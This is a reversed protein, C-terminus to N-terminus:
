LTMAIAFDHLGIVFRCVVATIFRGDVPLCGLPTVHVFFPCPASIAHRQMDTHAGNRTIRHRSGIHIMWQRRDWQHVVENETRRDLWHRNLKYLMIVVALWAGVHAHGYFGYAHQLFRRGCFFCSDTPAVPGISTKAAPAYLEFPSNMEVFLM